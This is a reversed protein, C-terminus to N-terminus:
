QAHRLPLRVTLLNGHLPRGTLRALHARYKRTGRRRHLRTGALTLQQCGTRIELSGGFLDVVCRYLAHLGYGQPFARRDAPRHSIGPFLAALLLEEDAAAADPTWNAPYKALRPHWGSAEVAFTDDVDADAVRLSQPAARLARIMSDGNDWVSITLEARGSGTPTVWSSITVVDGGPHLVANALLEHIVVRPVEAGDHALASDLFSLVLPGRWRSRETAVVSAIQPEAQFSYTVFGFFREDRLRQYATSSPRSPSPRLLRVRDHIPVVDAGWILSRFQPRSVMAAASPFASELLLEAVAHDRPMSIRTEGGTASRENLVSLLTTLGAMDAQTVDALDLDLPKEWDIASLRSVQAAAAATTITGPLLVRLWEGSTIEVSM